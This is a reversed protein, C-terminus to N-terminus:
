STKTIRAYVLVYPYINRGRVFRQTFWGLDPRADNSGWKLKTYVVKPNPYAKIPDITYMGSSLKKENVFTSSSPNDLEHVIMKVRFHAAQTLYEILGILKMEGVSYPVEINSFFKQPKLNDLPFCVSVFQMNGRSLRNEIAKSGWYEESTVTLNGIKEQNTCLKFVGELWRRVIPILTCM